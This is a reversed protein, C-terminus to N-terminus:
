LGAGGGTDELCSRNDGLGAGLVVSFELRHRRDWCLGCGAGETGLALPEAEGDDERGGAAPAVAKSIVHFSAERQERGTVPKRKRWPRSGRLGGDSIQEWGPRQHCRQRGAQGWIRAKSSRTM